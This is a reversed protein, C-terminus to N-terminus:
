IENINNSLIKRFNRFTLTWSLFFYRLLYFNLFKVLFFAKTLIKSKNIYFFNFHQKLKISSYIRPIFTGLLFFYFLLFFFIIWVLESILSMRDIQEM